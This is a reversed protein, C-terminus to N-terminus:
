KLSALPSIQSNSLSITIMQNYFVNLYTTEILFQNIQNQQLLAANFLLKSNDVHVKDDIFIFLYIDTNYVVTISQM